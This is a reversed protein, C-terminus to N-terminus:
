ITTRSIIYDYNILPDVLDNWLNPAFM